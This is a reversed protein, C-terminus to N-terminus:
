QPSIDCARKYLTSNAELEQAYNLLQKVSAKYYQAVKGPDKEDQESLLNLMLTPREPQHVTQLESPCQFVPKVVEVTEVKVVTRVEPKKCISCGTIWLLIIGVLILICLLKVKEM